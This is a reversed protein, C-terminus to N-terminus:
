MYLLSHRPMKLHGPVREQIPFRSARESISGYHNTTDATTVVAATDPSLTSAAAMMAAMAQIARGM